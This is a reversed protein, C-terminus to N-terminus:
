RPVGVSVDPLPFWGAIGRGCPRGRIHQRVDTSFVELASEYLAVAGDPHACAGRGSISRALEHSRRVVGSTAAGDVIARMEGALRPLGFLCSGCQGASQDALYDLLRLTLELGCSEHSLPAVLGCGLSVGGQRLAGRDVPAHWAAAGSVWRGGYGGVLVAQPARSLGGHGSLVTGLSVPRSVEVVL